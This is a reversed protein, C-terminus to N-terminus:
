STHTNRPIGPVLPSGCTAAHWNVLFLSLVLHTSNWAHGFNSGLSDDIDPSSASIELLSGEFIIVTVEGPSRFCDRAFSTNDVSDVIGCVVLKDTRLGEHLIGNHLDIGGWESLPIELFVVHLEIFLFKFFRILSTRIHLPGTVGLSLQCAYGLFAFKLLPHSVLEVRSVQESADRRAWSLASTDVSVNQLSFFKLEVLLLGLSLLM